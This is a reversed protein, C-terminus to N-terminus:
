QAVATQIVKAADTWNNVEVSVAKGKIGKPITIAPSLKKSPVTYIFPIDDGGFKAKYCNVLATMESGFNKSQGESGMTDGAIFIAGKLTAPTFSNVMVNYTLTATSKVSPVTSPYSGWAVGDPVAKTAMMEPIYTGWYNKWDGIYRKVNDGYFPNTPVQSGVIKYDDLMSPAMNLYEPAMWSKIEPNSGGKAVASQMWIIGVPNGSKAALQHGLVAAFGSADKWQSSFRNKPTTSVCVSFRSPRTHSSRKAQRALMRVVKGSNKVAPIDWKVNRGLSPAGVYWVDGFVVGEAIREHALEGDITLNVKLTYPTTGAKMVPLTVKWEKMGATVPISKKIPGFSFNIVAKGEAETGYNHLASGWITVPKGAQLVANDRFQTSLIAMKRYQYTLGVSNPDFVVGDVKLKEDPFDGKIMMKNDYFSFPTTPLLAKNYLNPQFGIGAAGYTVGRPTKVKASTLVVKSGDIKVKAAYWVRNEDAIYFLKVKDVGNPILKPYAIGVERNSANSGTEAVVLGGEANDFEVILQNGKVTYSKYMPGDVVLKKQGYQNKLAHLALRQGPVVKHGDHIGGSIDIQSAMGTNPIDRAMWTGLRMDTSGGIRPTNNEKGPHRMAASYFQHFYVPLEPRDWMLRWGRVLSHLNNYYPYGEGMNAYGQNWIGGKIAFPIVAHLRGHYLWTADRNGAMNGPVEAKIEKTPEGKKARAENAVIQGELDKYFASWAAKHEPTTPDTELVKKYIAKTYEDKGDRYGERPVWAQIATQSFSCNLIGIPVNLEKYLKHAFAFAIASYKTYDGNSWAGTAKEIPHLMAYVSKIQFERIPIIKSGKAEQEASFATALKLVSPTKTVLYQMNSQGSALWVEGVLINKITTSKGGAEAIVMERPEFSAKLKPLHAMWKGDTAAVASASKGAFSVKVKTGPAAWGWVPLKMDRQLVMNDVFPAGLGNLEARYVTKVTDAPVSSVSSRSGSESCGSLSLLGFSSLCMVALLSIQKVRKMGFVM